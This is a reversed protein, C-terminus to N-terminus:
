PQLSIGVKCAAPGEIVYVYTARAENQYPSIGQNM